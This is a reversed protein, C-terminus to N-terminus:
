QFSAFALAAVQHHDLDNFTGTLFDDFSIFLPPHFSHTLRINHM